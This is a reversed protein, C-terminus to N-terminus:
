TEGGEGEKNEKERKGMTLNEGPRDVNEAQPRQGGWGRGLGTGCVPHGQSLHFTPPTGGEKWTDLAGGQNKIVLTTPAISRM